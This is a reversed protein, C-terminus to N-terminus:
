DGKTLLDEIYADLEDDTNIDIDEQVKQLLAVINTRLKQLKEDAEKLKIETSNSKEEVAKARADARSQYSNCLSQLGSEYQQFYEKLPFAVLEEATMSNVDDKPIRFAPPFFYRLMTRLMTVLSDTVERSTGPQTTDPEMRAPGKETEQQTDPTQSIPSPPRMLRVEDSGKFVWRDKPTSRPVYDFKVKWRVTQKNAEVAIVKGTFWEKNVRVEVLLGKDKQANKANNEPEQQAKESTKAKAGHQQTSITKPVSTPTSPTQRTPTTIGKKEHQSHTKVEDLKSRKVAPAKEVVKGRNGATTAMKSKKTQPEEESDESEDEEEEEEEEDEEEEEEEEESDEQEIIRKRQGTAATKASSAKAPTRSSRTPPPTKAVAKPSPKVPPPPPKAASRSRSPEPKSPPPAPTRTPRQSPARTPPASPANKLHAPLPPSRPRTVTRESSRTAQSSSETPKMSVELPLKKLDAASKITSTKQLNELKEQQQKIKEALEKQKDEATPKDKKLVGCPLNQKQEPADCRDQSSDPNMLCVWSDPYRKDVADMQFPLTRWKLCKDCQITLPIEMARRRKYRQESSPPASWSASLYGFEDWFKAIGKQAINSDKWYQALHEGMSKLLHRYEKADAFDQKNHTPELVLYPVDVVGVVGGCAMGGELQPGTKEYMKILRSCNYVFMGDLDRQEINVGFIFHLEKPEKLAKQKAELKMKKIEADRRLMMASDQVKRLVARSDKSLDEGLKAEMAIRKSEAERAKEEAIKALHDAKKVEQEARTKFRTSSYKYVRPKYLCCSLRKTRVKHGQIFIRMRPDIYLVAAYARFSRREPKVGEAPTGAMLIDQHDTEIDLEPEGNDMLKLNYIIVLTGSSSEIKNFQEMLQMENKFPSYKFILETEIAYKEPDSTLPEKTKMDWSPLPVIVEDLEEEEHFTRSLFLCTLSNGKKTFLIFDKGMRMSGSKLGNGYQGIQSSELSRKSSKGFQIVHTAESPDMGVGDDLFCLMYGGRLEPRKETYIDIRTANADRSNDVLEALAGFLFEHTTSNTHLYEFTLQARSLSSYNSCAM